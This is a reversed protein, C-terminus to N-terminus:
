WILLTTDGKNGNDGLGTGHNINDLILQTLRQPAVGVDVATRDLAVKQNDVADPDVSLSPYKACVAADIDSGGVFYGNLDANSEWVSPTKPSLMALTM